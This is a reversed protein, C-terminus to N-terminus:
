TDLDHHHHHHHDNDNSHQNSKAAWTNTMITETATTVQATGDVAEDGGGDESSTTKKEATEVDAKPATTNNEAPFSGNHRKNAASSQSAHGDQDPDEGLVRLREQLNSIQAAMNTNLQEYHEVRSRLM